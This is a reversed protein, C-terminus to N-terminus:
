NPLDYARRATRLFVDEPVHAARIAVLNGERHSMIFETVHFGEAFRSELSVGPGSWRGADFGLEAFAPDGAFVRYEHWFQGNEDWRWYNLDAVRRQRLCLWWGYRRGFDTQKYEQLLYDALHNKASRQFWRFLM